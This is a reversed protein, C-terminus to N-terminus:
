NLWCLITYFAFNCTSKQTETERDREREKYINRTNTQIQLKPFRVLIRDMPKQSRIINSETQPGMKGYAVQKM